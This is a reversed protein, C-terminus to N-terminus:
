ETKSAAPPGPAAKANADAEMAEYKSACKAQVAEAHFTGNEYRGDAVAQAGDRLTDPLPDLGTYVIPVIQSGQQLNFQVRGAVRQISGSAVDGAVRFRRAHTQPSALLESVTVYYTKSEQIGSYALWSITALIIVIGIAFQWRSRKPRMEM